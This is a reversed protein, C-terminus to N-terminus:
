TYSQQASYYNSPGTGCHMTDQPHVSALQSRPSHLAAVEQM